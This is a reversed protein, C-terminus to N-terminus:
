IFSNIFETNIIIIVLLYYVFFILLFIIVKKNKVILSNDEENEKKQLFVLFSKDVDTYNRSEPINIKEMVKKSIYYKYKQKLNEIFDTQSFYTYLENCCNSQKSLRLFSFLSRRSQHSMADDLKVTYRKNDRQSQDLVFINDEIKNNKGSVLILDNEEDIHNELLNNQEEKNNDLSLPAFFFNNLDQKERRTGKDNQHAFTRFIKETNSNINNNLERKREQIILKFLFPAIVIMNSDYNHHRRLYNKQTKKILTIDGFYKSPDDSYFKGFSTDVDFDFQDDDEDDDNENDISNSINIINYMYEDVTENKKINYFFFPSNLDNYQSTLFDKSIDKVTGLESEFKKSIYLEEFTLNCYENLRLYNPENKTLHMLVLQEHILEEFIGFQLNVLIEIKNDLYKMKKNFSLLEFGTESQKRKNNNFKIGKVYYNFSNNLKNKNLEDWFFQIGAKLLILKIQKFKTNKNFKFEIKIVKRYNYTTIKFYTKIWFEDTNIDCYIIDGSKLYENICGNKPLSIRRENQLKYLNEITLGAVNKFESSSKFSEKIQSMLEQFDLESKAIILVKKDPYNNPKVYIELQSIFQEAKAYYIFKSDDGSHSLNTDRDLFSKNKEGSITLTKKIGFM